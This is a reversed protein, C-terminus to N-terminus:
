DLVGAVILRVEQELTLLGRLNERLASLQVQYGDATHRLAKLERAVDSSPAEAQELLGELVKHHEKLAQAMEAQLKRIQDILERVLAWEEENLDLEKALDSEEQGPPSWFRRILAQQGDADLSRFAIVQFALEDQWRFRLELVRGQGVQGVAQERLQRALRRRAEPALSRFAFMIPMVEERWGRMDDIFQRQREAVPLVSLVDMQTEFRDAWLAFDIGALPAPLDEQGTAAPVVWLVLLVLVWRRM